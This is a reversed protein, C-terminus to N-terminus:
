QQPRSDKKLTITFNAMAGIRDNYGYATYIYHVGVSGFVKGEATINITGIITSNAVLKWSVTDDAGADLLGTGITKKQVEGQALSLNAPLAISANCSSAPYDSITNPLPQPYTITSEIQFPTGPKIYTPVSINVTWPSVYLAWNGYYSWLDLFQANNFAINPGGYASGWLSKNWPDHLFVHTQNYGVAVRFHTSIHYSSYWMLLILPKGQSLYSELTSLSISQSEFAAYGLSRLAYGTINNPLENGMSTSLNSFHGARRLDDIFTAYVPDGITRAAGAIEYQSINEGYYNFVMQLCAPGCYYDKDQYYFPVNIHTELPISVGAANISPYIGATVTVLVFLLLFFVSYRLPIAVVLVGAIAIFFKEANPPLYHVM